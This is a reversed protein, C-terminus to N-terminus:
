QPHCELTINKGTDGLEFVHAKNIDLSMSVTQGMKIDIHPNLNAILKDQSRTTLYVDLRDGLPEIVDVTATIVNDSLGEYPVTSINEPRIGLVVKHNDYGTL